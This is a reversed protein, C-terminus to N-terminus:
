SLSSLHNAELIQGTKLIFVVGGTPIGFLTMWFGSTNAAALRFGTTTLLKDAEDEEEDEVAVDPLCTGCTVKKLESEKLM